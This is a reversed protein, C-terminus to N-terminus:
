FPDAVTYKTLEDKKDELADSTNDKTENAYIVYSTPNRGATATFQELARSIDFIKYSLVGKKAETETSNHRLYFVIESDGSKVESGNYVLSFNHKNLSETSAEKLLFILPLILKTKDYFMFQASNNMNAGDGIQLVTASEYTEGNDTAVISSSYTMKELITITADINKTNQDIKQTDSDYSYQFYVYDGSYMNLDAATNLVNFNIGSPTEIIIKPFSEVIKGFTVGSVTPDSEGLCSTLSIGMLLTLAAMLFKLQKMKSIFILTQLNLYFFQTIYYEGRKKM